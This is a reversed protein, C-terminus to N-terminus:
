FSVATYDKPVNDLSGVIEINTIPVNLEESSQQEFDPWKISLRLRQVISSKRRTGSPVPSRAEALSIM